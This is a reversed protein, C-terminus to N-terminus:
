SVVNGPDSDDLNEIYDFDVQTLNIGFDIELDRINDMWTPGNDMDLYYTINPHAKEALLKFIINNLELYENIIRYTKKINIHTFIVNVENIDVGTLEVMKSLESTNGIHKRGYDYAEEIFEVYKEDYDPSEKWYKSHDLTISIVLWGGIYMCNIDVLNKYYMVTLFKAISKATKNNDLNKM